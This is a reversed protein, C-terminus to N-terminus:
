HVIFSHCDSTCCLPFNSLLLHDPLNMCGDIWRQGLVLHRGTSNYVSHKLSASVGLIHTKLFFHDRPAHMDLVKTGPSCSINNLHYLSSCLRRASGSSCTFQWHCRFFLPFEQQDGSGVHCQLKGLICQVQLYGGINMWVLRMSPMLWHCAM